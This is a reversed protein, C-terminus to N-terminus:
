VGVEKKPKRAKPDFPDRKELMEEVSEEYGLWAKNAHSAVVSALNADSIPRKLISDAGAKAFDGESTDDEAVVVVIRMPLPRLSKIGVYGADAADAAKRASAVLLLTGGRGGAATDLVLVQPVAKAMLMGLEFGCRGDELRLVDCTGGLAAAVADLESGVTVVQPRDAGLDGIPMGHDRMFEVLHERPVRRDNSGPIRYGKLRGADIWKTVTRPAVKCIKAVQGTTFM